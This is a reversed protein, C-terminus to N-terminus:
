PLPPAAPAGAPPPPATPRGASQAPSATRDRDARDPRDARPITGLVALTFRPDEDLALLKPLEIDHIADPAKPPQLDQTAVLVAGSLGAALAEHLRTTTDGPPLDNRDLWVPVGSARLRRALDLAHGTADSWRYSIFVPGCPNVGDLM